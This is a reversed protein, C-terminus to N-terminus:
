ATSFAFLLLGIAVIYQGYDGFFGRNFALATLPSSHVLSKGIFKLPTKDVINGNSVAISGTFLADSLLGEDKYVIISDAFSRAHLFTFAENNTIRGNEVEINGTYEALKENDNLHDYVKQVHEPNNEAFQKSLIEIETYEFQNTHKENWAGSSLLVLGTVTCIIITDIFPELIAVMGESLPEN